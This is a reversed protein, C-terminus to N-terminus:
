PRFRNILACYIFRYMEGNNKAINTAMKKGRKLQQEAWITCRLRQWTAACTWCWLQVGCESHMQKSKGRHFSHRSFIVVIYVNCDATIWLMVFVIWREPKQEFWGIQGFPQYSIESERISERESESQTPLFDEHAVRDLNFIKSLLCWFWHFVFWFCMSIFFLFLLAIPHTLSLVFVHICVFLM